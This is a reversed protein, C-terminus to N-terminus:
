LEEVLTDIKKYVKLAEENVNYHHNCFMLRSINEIQVIHKAPAGCADCRDNLTLCVVQRVLPKKPISM